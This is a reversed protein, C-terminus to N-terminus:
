FSQDSHYDRCIQLGRQYAPKDKSRQILNEKKLDELQKLCDPTLAITTSIEDNRTINPLPGDGTLLWGSNIKVMKANLIKAITTASPKSRKGGTIGNITTQNIGTDRCFTSENRQYFTDIVFEIRENITQM